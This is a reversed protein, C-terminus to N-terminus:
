HIRRGISIMAKGTLAGGGTVFLSPIQPIVTATCTYEGSDCTTASDVLYTHTYTTETTVRQSTLTLSTGKRSLRINLQLLSLDSTMVVPSLEVTCLISINSGVSQIHAPSTM